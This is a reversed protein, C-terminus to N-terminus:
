SLSLLKGFIGIVPSPKERQFMELIFNWVKREWTQVFIEKNKTVTEPIEQDSKIIFTKWTCEKMFTKERIKTWFPFM